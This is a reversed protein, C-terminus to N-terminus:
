PVSAEPPLNEGDEGTLLNTLVNDYAMSVVTCHGAQAGTLSAGVHNSYTAEQDVSYDYDVCRTNGSCLPTLGLYPGAISFESCDFGYNAETHRYNWFRDVTPAITYGELFGPHFADITVMRDIIPGDVEIRPDEALVQSIMSANIGGWSYGLVSVTCQEDEQNVVGDNTTDLAEFLAEYASEVLESQDGEFVVTTIPWMPDCGEENCREVLGPMQDCMLGVLPNAGDALTFAGALCLSVDCTETEQTEPTCAGLSVLAVLALRGKM